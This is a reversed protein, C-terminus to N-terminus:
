KPKRTKAYADFLSMFIAQMSYAEFEHSPSREGIDEFVFQKVHTAEHVLIGMVVADDTVRDSVTVVICMEKKDNTFVTTRGDSNPYPEDPIKLRKLNAKWAAENPCFGYYFPLWGRDCWIIRDKRM